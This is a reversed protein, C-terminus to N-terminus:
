VWLGHKTKPQCGIHHTVAAAKNKVEWYYDTCRQLLDLFLVSLLSLLHFTNVISWFFSILFLSLFIFWSTNFHSYQVSEDTFYLSCAWSSSNFKAALKSHLMFAVLLCLFRQFDVNFCNWSAKYPQNTHFNQLPVTIGTGKQNALFLHSYHFLTKGRIGAKSAKFMPKPLSRKINRYFVFTSFM